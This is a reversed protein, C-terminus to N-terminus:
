PCDKKKREPKNGTMRLNIIKNLLDFWFPTGLSVAAVTFTWGVIKMPLQKLFAYFDATGSDIQWGIPLNMNFLQSTMDLAQASQLNANKSLDISYASVAARMVTDHYIGNAIQITDVNLIVTVAIALYLNYKQIDRKYWGSVRDMADDFWCELQVKFESVEKAERLMALLAEKFQGAPFAELNSKITSLTEDSSYERGTKLLDIVAAALQRSPIYSPPREMQLGLTVPSPIASHNVTAAAAIQQNAISPESVGPLSVPAKTKWLAFILPHYYLKDVLHPDDLMSVLGEKLKKSRLQLFSAIRENINMCVLSIVTYILTLALAVELIASGFM